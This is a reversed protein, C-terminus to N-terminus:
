AATRRYLKKVCVVAVGGFLVVGIVAPVFYTSVGTKPSETDSKPHVESDRVVAYAAKTNGTVTIVGNEDMSYEAVTWTDGGNDKTIIM